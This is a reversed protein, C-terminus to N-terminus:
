HPTLLGHRGMQRAWTALGVRVAVAQKGDAQIVKSPQDDVRVRGLGRNVVRNIGNYVEHVRQLMRPSRRVGQLDSYAGEKDTHERCFSKENRMHYQKDEFLM